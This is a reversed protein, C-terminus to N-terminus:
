SIVEKKYHLARELGMRFRRAGIMVRNDRATALNVPYLSPPGILGVIAGARM